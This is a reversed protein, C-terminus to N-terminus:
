KCSIKQTVHATFWLFQHVIDGVKWFHLPHPILLILLWFMWVTEDKERHCQGSFKQWSVHVFYDSSKNREIRYITNHVRWIPKKWECVQGWSWFQPVARTSDSLKPLLIVSIYSSFPHNM